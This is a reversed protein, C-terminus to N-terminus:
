CSQVTHILCGAISSRVAVAEPRSVAHDISRTFVTDAAGVVIICVLSPRLHSPNKENEEGQAAVRTHRNKNTCEDSVGSEKNNRTNNTM